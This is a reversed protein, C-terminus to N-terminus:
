LFIVPSGNTIKVLTNRHVSCRDSAFDLHRIPCLKGNSVFQCRRGTCKPHKKKFKPHRFLMEIPHNSKVSNCFICSPFLNDIENGGGCALPQNHEVEWRELRDDAAGLYKDCYLCHGNTKSHVSRALARSITKRPPKGNASTKEHKTSSPGTSSSTCRAEYFSSSNGCTGICICCEGASTCCNGM